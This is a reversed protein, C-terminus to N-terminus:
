GFDFLLPEKATKIYFEYNFITSSLENYSGTVDKFFGVYEFVKTYYNKLDGHHSYSEPLLQILAKASELSEDITDYTGNAAYCRETASLCYEWAPFDATGNILESATCGCNEKVFIPDFGIQAALRDTVTSLDCDPADYIGFCWADRINAVGNKCLSEASDILVYALQALDADSYATESAGTQGVNAGYVTAMNKEADYGVDLGYAEALARLPAYTTGEYAFVPVDKGTVDKPAFVVGNVQIEIPDVEITMRASIAVASLSGLLVAVLMGLLFAPIQKKM